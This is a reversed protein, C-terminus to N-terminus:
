DLPSKLYRRHPAILGRAADRFWAFDQSTSEPRRPGCHFANRIGERATPELALRVDGHIEQLGRRYKRGRSMELRFSRFRLTSRPRPHDSLLSPRLRGIGACPAKWAACAHRPPCTSRTYVPCSKPTGALHIASSSSISSLRM